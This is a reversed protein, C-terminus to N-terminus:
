TLRHHCQYITMHLQNNHNMICVCDSKHSMSYAQLLLIVAVFELMMMRTLTISNSTSCILSILYDSRKFSAFWWQTSLNFNRM